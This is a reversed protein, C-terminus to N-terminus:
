PGLLATGPSRDWSQPGLLATGPTRDWSQPGPSRDLVATGPSRDWSQPGLVATWSQPALVVTGPSRDWSQPGLVATGPSRDWSQPGLLATWPNRDWSHPGLLATGPSRDWSQPALVATGPSRDWSHPLSVATESAAAEHKKTGGFNIEMCHEKGGHNNPEGKGWSKFNFKFGDSWLWVGEMVADHGGVWFELDKGAATRVLQRIFDYETTSKISALNGGHALCDTEASAWNMPQNKFIFCRSGLQTWGPPCTECCDNGEAKADAEMWLGSTLCLLVICSVVSAMKSHHDSSTTSAAAAPSDHYDNAELTCAEEAPLPVPM